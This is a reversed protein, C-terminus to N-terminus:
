GSIRDPPGDQDRGLSEALSQLEELRPQLEKRVAHQNLLYVGCCVIGVVALSGLLVGANVFFDTSQASWVPQGIVAFMGVLPPLLYWWFVNRLLWIQHEIDSQSRELWVALPDSPTAAGRIRLWRDAIMFLASFLCGAALVLPPWSNSNFGSRAFVVTMILLITTELVDRRLLTARFGRHNSKALSLLSEVDITVKQTEQSRWTRQLADPEM